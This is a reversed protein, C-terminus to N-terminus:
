SSLWLKVAALTNEPRFYQIPPCHLQKMTAEFKARLGACRAVSGSDCSQIVILSSGPPFTGSLEKATNEDLDSALLYSTGRQDLIGILASICGSIGSAGADRRALPMARIQQVAPAFTKVSAKREEEVTKHADQFDQADQYFTDSNLDRPQGYALGDIGPVEVHRSYRGISTSDSRAVVDRLWLDIRDVPKSVPQGPTPSDKPLAWARVARAAVEDAIAELVAPAFRADLSGTHDLCGGRHSLPAAALYAPHTTTSVATGSGDPSGNGSHPWVLIGVLVVPIGVLSVAVPILYRSRGRGRRPPPVSGPSAFQNFVM